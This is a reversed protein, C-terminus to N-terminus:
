AGVNRLQQDLAAVSEVPLQCVGSRCVYAVGARRDRLLPSSGTGVIVVSRRTFSSRVFETLTNTDGPIVVEVGSVAFGAAELLDPVAGPHTALLSAALDVLRQAVVLYEDDGTCLALRALARCALAHSSPTAGDFIEKPQARLDTVLNSRAFVGGGVHPSRPTPVEGDWYHDLLYRALDRADGIWRDDGTTEFADISADLLWAVDSAGAHAARAETRWWVDDHFHTRRLSELLSTAREDCGPDRAEFLASAFM